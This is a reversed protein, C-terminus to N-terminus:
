LSQARPECAKRARNASKEIQRMMHSKDTFGGRSMYGWHRNFHAGEQRRARATVAPPRRRGNRGMAAM